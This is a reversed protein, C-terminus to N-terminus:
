SRPGSQHEHLRHGLGNPPPDGVSALDMSGLSMITWNPGSPDDSYPEAPFDLRVDNDPIAVRQDCDPCKEVKVTM